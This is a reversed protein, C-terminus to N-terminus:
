KVMPPWCNLPFSQGVLTSTPGESSIVQSESSDSVSSPNVTQRPYVIGIHPDQFKGDHIGLDCECLIEVDDGCAAGGLEDGVGETDWKSTNRGPSKGPSDECGARGRLSTIPRESAAGSPSSHALEGAAANPMGNAVFEGRSELNTGTSPETM